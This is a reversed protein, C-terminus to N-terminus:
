LQWHLLISSFITYSHCQHCCPQAIFPSGPLPLGWMNFPAREEDLFFIASHLTLACFVCGQTHPPFSPLFLKGAPDLLIPSTLYQFEM